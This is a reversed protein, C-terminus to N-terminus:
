SKFCVFVMSHDISMVIDDPHIVNEEEAKMKFGNLWVVKHPNGIVKKFESVVRDLEAFPGATADIVLLIFGLSPGDNTNKFVSPMIYDNGDVASLPVQSTSRM